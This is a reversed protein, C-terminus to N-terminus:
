EFRSKMSKLVEKGKPNYVQGEFFTKLKSVLKDFDKNSDLDGTNDFEMYNKKFTNQLQPKDKKAREWLNKVVHEPLSRNDRSKNRELSKEKPVNIYLVKVDYGLNELKKKQKIPLSTRVTDIIIPKLNEFAKETRKINEKIAKSRLKEERKIQEPDKLDKLPLDELKAWEELIEDANETRVGELGLEKVLKNKITSKGSGSGGAIYLAKLKIDDSKALKALVKKVINDRGM